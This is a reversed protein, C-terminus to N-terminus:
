AKRLDKAVAVTYRGSTKSLLFFGEGLNNIIELNEFPRISCPCYLNAVGRSKIKEYLNMSMSSACALKVDDGKRFVTSNTTKKSINFNM